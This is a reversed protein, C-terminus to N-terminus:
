ISITSQACWSLHWAFVNLHVVLIDYEMVVSSPIVISLIGSLTSGLEGSNFALTAANLAVPTSLGVFFSCDMTSFIECPAANAVCCIGRWNPNVALAPIVPAAPNGKIAPSAKFWNILINPPLKGIALLDM